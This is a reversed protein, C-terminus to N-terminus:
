GAVKKLTKTSKTRRAGQPIDDIKTAKPLFIDVRAGGEQEESINVQGGSQTVFGYVASLGLGLHGTDTKSTFFPNFARGALDASMGPGTDRVSVRVFDGSNGRVNTKETERSVRLNETEVVLRGLGEMADRGNRLIELLCERFHQEDLLVPWLGAGAVFSIEIGAPMETRAQRIVEGCIGNLHLHEPDLKQRQAISMMRNALKYFHAGEDQQGFLYAVEGLGQEQLGDLKPGAAQEMLAQMQDCLASFTQAVLTMHNSTIQSEQRDSFDSVDIVMVYTGANDAAPAEVFQITRHNNLKQELVGGSGEHWAMRERLWSDLRYIKGEPLLDEALATQFEHYQLGPELIEALEPLITRIGENAVILRDRKDFVMLGAPFDRHFAANEFRQAGALQSGAGYPTGRREMRHRQLLSLFQFQVEVASYPKGLFALRDAPAVERCLQVPSLDNRESVLVIFVDPDKQRISQALELGAGAKQLDLDLFAVAFPSKEAIANEFGSLASEVDRATFLDVEPFGERCVVDQFFDTRALYPNPPGVGAVADAGFVRKYDEIVRAEQDVVM